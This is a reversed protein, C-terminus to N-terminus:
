DDHDMETQARLKNLWASRARSAFTVTPGREACRVCELYFGGPAAVMTTSTHGCRREPTLRATM